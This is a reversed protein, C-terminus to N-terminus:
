TAAPTEREAALYHATGPAGSDAGVDGRARLGELLVSASRRWHLGHEISVSLGCTLAQFDTVTVDNRMVGADQAQSILIALYNELASCEKPCLQAAPLDGFVERLGADRGMAEATRQVFAAVAEWPDALRLAEAVAETRERLWQRSVEAVLAQKTPFNRYLTGIGVGARRAISEMQIEAGEETFAVRATQLIRDRNRRADARLRREGSPVGVAGPLPTM